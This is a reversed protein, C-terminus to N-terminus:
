KAYIPFIGYIVCNGDEKGANLIVEDSENLQLAKIPWDSTQYWKRCDNRHLREIEKRDAIENSETLATALIQEELSLTIAKNLEPDTNDFSTMQLVTFLIDHRRIQILFLLDRRTKTLLLLANNSWPDTKTRM